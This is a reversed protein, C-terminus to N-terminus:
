ARDTPPVVRDLFARVTALFADREEVQPSHGSQEFVVLEADPVLAAITESMSVPTVWDHRGVTVLVPCRLSPLQPKLDYTPM